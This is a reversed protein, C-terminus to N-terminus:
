SRGLNRQVHLNFGADDFFICNKIFDLGQVKEWNEVKEKKLKIVWDTNRAATLCREEDDNYKKVYYQTTRIHIGTVIPAEKATDGDGIVEDFLKEIQGCTYWRHTLDLNLNQSLKNNRNWQHPRLLLVCVYQFQKMPIENTSIDMITKLLVVSDNVESYWTEQEFFFIVVCTGGIRRRQTSWSRWGPLHGRGDVAYRWRKQLTAFENYM